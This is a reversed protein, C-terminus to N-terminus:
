YAGNSPPTSNTRQTVQLLTQGVWQFRDDYNSISQGVTDWVIPQPSGTDIHKEGVMKKGRYLHVPGYYPKGNIYGNHPDPIVKGVCNVVSIVGAFLPDEPLNGETDDGIRDICFVPTLRANYGTESKIYIDPREVFGKGTKVIRVSELVGFPGFTPIIEAGNSPEIVVQDESSYNIGANEISIDCLYLIVPYSGVDLTPFANFETEGNPGTGPINTTGRLRALTDNYSDGIGLDNIGRNGGSGPTVNGGPGVPIGGELVQRDEPRIVVDGDGANIQDDPTGPPYRQWRGDDRRVVTDGRDAWVRGDGGLDGDPRPIFGSGPDDVVVQVVRQTPEGTTPDIGGDPEMIARARVGGGKGCNDSIDVFPAKTYGLGRAVLDVGLIDGAASVIVNGTAGGGGSGWFSIKPPGCFVPGINCSNAANTADSILSGFDISALSDIDVLSAANAALGKAQNIISDIDFTIPPKGGEFINWEKTDPCEQDEECAFFGALASLLGLISGALSFAGGILSSLKNIISDIAGSLAGLVNGLLSGIFNQVACAPVNIYRDLMKSLFNGVLSKLNGILKNFLCVILEIIADHAVKAKDRDPPNILEKLKKTKDNIQEEVYKRIEKFLWKLAKAILESAESIKEQIWRQKDAIWGQAASQWKNLQTTAREIKQILEKMSKAISPLPVKECDQPSNLSFSPEQMMTVDSLSAMNPHFLGEYPKGQTAPISYGAVLDQDKYGSFPIFGNNAPQNKPLLLQDNNMITGVQIPDEKKAPNAWIGWVRSGQTIGISLGTKKHGTGANSGSVRVWPLQDDPLQEKNPPHVGEIRVKIRYGWNKLESRDNILEEDREWTERPAVVGQWYNTPTGPDFLSSGFIYNSM